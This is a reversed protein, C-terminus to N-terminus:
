KKERLRELSETFPPYAVGRETIISAILESPTVDFAPNFVNVGKPAIEQGGMIHTVEKPDREEIPIEDGSRKGFDITSM